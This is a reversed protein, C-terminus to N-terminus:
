GIKVDGKMEVKSSKEINLSAIVLVVAFLIIVAIQGAPTVGKPSSALGFNHSLAAGVLMGMVAVASDTNGEGALILQRLPCGGLLVSGWGALAMGLFNWLADTHAVPQEAFGLKFFGFAMNGILAFVLIAVFGSLLYTDKFMVLDRIGGVMCLRTKQALVGVVLGAALAFFIPAYMSGPGEKSFFIFSPAAMLLAFLGAFVAPFMFGEAKSLKYSRKLSFGKNLFVIGLLIGAVFGAIGFLANLDGGALRLVMRLPCGLFVLAGVMVAIGLIFRTFPSSGGKTEFEKSFMAMGFAGIVLGIVEPRIYQVVEARHLGIGGAIDRIFCAICMGMNMPNGLKVLLVSILGVIAGSLIIGKKNGM